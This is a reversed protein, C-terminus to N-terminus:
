HKLYHYLTQSLPITNSITTYHKLYHYLTQSLPITNSHKIVNKVITWVELDLWTRNIEEVTYNILNAACIFSYKEIYCLLDRLDTDFHFTTNLCNIVCVVQASTWVFINPKFYQEKCRKLGIGYCKLSKLVLIHDLRYFLVFLVGVVWRNMGLLSGSMVQAAYNVFTNM